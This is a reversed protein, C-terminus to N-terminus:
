DRHKVCSNEGLVIVKATKLLIKLDLALSFNRVYEVDYATREEWTLESNGNVQALGTMGPRMQYREEDLGRSETVVYPRPGIFSMEGALINLLQPLEDLKFRRLLKGPPPVSKKNQDVSSMTRYKLITFLKKRYGMRTQRFIVKGPFYFNLIIMLLLLLPSLLILGAASFVLDFLRKFFLSIRKRGAMEMKGWM